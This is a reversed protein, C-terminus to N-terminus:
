RAFGTQSEVVEWASGGDRFIGVARRAHDHAIAPYDPEYHRYVNHLAWDVVDLFFDADRQARTMLDPLEQGPQLGPDLRLALQVAQVANGRIAGGYETNDVFFDRLWSALPM